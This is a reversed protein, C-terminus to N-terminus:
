QLKAEKLKEKKMTSIKNDHPDLLKTAVWSSQEELNETSETNQPVLTKNNKKAKRSISFLNYM